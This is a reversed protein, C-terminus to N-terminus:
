VIPSLVKDIHTKFTFKDDIWIVLYTYHPVKETPIGNLTCSQISIDIEKARSFFMFKTKDANLNLILFPM